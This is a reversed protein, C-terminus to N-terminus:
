SVSDSSSTSSSATNSSFTTEQSSSDNKVSAQNESSKQTQSALIQAAPRLQIGAAFSSVAITSFLWYKGAKYMKYHLKEESKKHM